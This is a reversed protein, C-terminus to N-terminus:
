HLQAVASYRMASFRQRNVERGARQTGLQSIRLSTKRKEFRSQGLLNGPTGSTGRQVGPKVGDRRRRQTVRM